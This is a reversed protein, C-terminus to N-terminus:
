CGEYFCDLCEYCSSGKPRTNISGCNECRKTEKVDSKEVIGKVPIRMEEEIVRAIAHPPSSILESPCDGITTFLPKDSPINKLNRIISHPIVGARLALSIIKGLGEAWSDEVGSTHHAGTKKSEGVTTFVEVIEGETNKNIIIYLNHGQMHVRYTAGELRNGRKKPLVRSEPDESKRAQLTDTNKKIEEPTEQAKGWIVEPMEVNDPKKVLVGEKSQDRFITIGKVGNEMAMFFIKNVDDTTAKSPLNVTKSVSSDTYKSFLIMMRVHDEPSIEQATKFYLPKEKDPNEQKWKIYFPCGDEYSGMRTNRQYSLSFWPECGTSVNYMTGITGTPAVSILTANRLGHKKIDARIEPSLTQIFGSCELLKDADFVPFSGKEKALEISTKYAEDRLVILITEIFKRGEETDYGLGMAILADHVAMVGLGVRREKQAMLEIDKLPFFCNDIVNDGFRVAIHIVRKFEEFDFSGNKVFSSLVLSSLNCSSMAPLLQEACPNGSTLPHVYEINHMRRATSMNIIGPCGDAWANYCIRDWIESAKIKRVERIEFKDSAGPYPVLRKVKWLATANSNAVVNFTKEKFLGGGKSKKFVVTYLEWEMGKWLLPWLADKKVAELFEDTIGISINYMQLKYFNDFKFSEWKDRDKVEIFEKLQDWNHERKYSILEWVDPHSVELLGLNAGRRSNHSILTNAVYSHSENVELDCTFDKEHTIDKVKSYFNNGVAPLKGDDFYKMLESYASLTLNRDGRIYRTLQKRLSGQESNRKYKPLSDLAKKLWFKGHPLIYWRQNSQLTKHSCCTQFRSLPDVHITKNWVELGKPSVVCVKYMPRKSFARLGRKVGSIACPIGLGFLLAQLETALIPSTTSVM